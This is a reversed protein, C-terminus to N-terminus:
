HGHIIERLEETTLGALPNTTQVSGSLEVKDLFAGNTRALYESAKLRDTHKAERDRLLETWYSKVEALTAVNNGTRLELYEEVEKNRRDLARQINPNNLLQSAGSKANVHDKPSYSAKYSKVANGTKIYEDVFLKQKETLRRPKM